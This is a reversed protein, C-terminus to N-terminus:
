APCTTGQAPPQLTLLYRNVYADVCASGQLYSTHGAGNWSLLRANGLDRALDVAGHYPTAPDNVNGLVLVTTRTKASPSPVPTPTARWGLCSFLSSAQWKGFLPFRDVLRAISAHLQADTPRYRTDNCSITINADLLNTYRGNPQREAQMDALQLLGAGNGHLAQELAEALTPWESKAYLAAAVAGFALSYTLRRPTGTALPHELAATTIEHVAATPDYLGQCAPM